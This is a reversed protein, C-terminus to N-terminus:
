NGLVSSYCHHVVRIEENFLVFTQLKEDTGQHRCIEKLLKKSIQKYVYCNM